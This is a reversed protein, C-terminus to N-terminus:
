AGVLRYVEPHKLGIKEAGFAGMSIGALMRGDRNPAAHFRREVDAVVDQVIYDEFRDGSKEASNTYYSDKGDPMVLIWHYPRIYDALHSNQISEIPAGGHGHLM